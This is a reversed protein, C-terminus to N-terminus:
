LQERISGCDTRDQNGVLISLQLINGKSEIVHGSVNPVLGLIRVKTCDDSSNSVAYRHALELNIVLGILQVLIVPDVSQM